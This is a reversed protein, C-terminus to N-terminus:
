NKGMKLLGRKYITTIRAIKKGCEHFANFEYLQNTNLTEHAAFM